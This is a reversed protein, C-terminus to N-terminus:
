LWEPSDNDDYMEVVPGPAGLIFVGWGLYEREYKLYTRRSTDLWDRMAPAHEDDENEYLWLTAARWQQSYYRDRDDTSAIVMDMLHAKAESFRDPLDGLHPLSDPAVQLNECVAETPQKRWFTEGILLLGQENDRLADSMIKLTVDLRNNLWSAEFCSVIHYQHFAQPFALVDVVDTFQVQSWVKLTDARHQAQRIQDARTDVGTGKIDFTLAWQLLLEGRGCALDLMRTSTNIGCREALMLMKEHSLPNHIRQGATAIEYFDLAM